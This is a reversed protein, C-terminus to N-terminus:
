CQHGGCLEAGACHEERVPMSCSCPEAQRPPDVGNKSVRQPQSRLAMGRVWTWLIKLHTNGLASTPQAQTHRPLTEAATCCCRAGPKQLTKTATSHGLPAQFMGTASMRQPSIDHSQSSIGRPTHHAKCEGHMGGKCASRFGVGSGYWVGRSWCPPRIPSSDDSGQIPLCLPPLSQNGGEEGRRWGGWGGKGGERGAVWGEEHRDTWQHAWTPM